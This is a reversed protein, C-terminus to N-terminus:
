MKSEAHRSDECRRIDVAYCYWGIRVGLCEEDSWDFMHLVDQETEAVASWDKLENSLKCAIVGSASNVSDDVGSGSVAHLERMAATAFDHLSQDFIQHSGGQCRFWSKSSTDRRTRPVRETTPCSIRTNLRSRRDTRKRSMKDRVGLDGHVGASSTQFVSGGAGVM